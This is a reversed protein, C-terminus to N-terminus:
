HYHSTCTTQLYIIGTTNRGGKRLLQHYLHQAPFDSLECWNGDFSPWSPAAGDWKMTNHPSSTFSCCRLIHPMWFLTHFLYWYIYVFRYICCLVDNTTSYKLKFRELTYVLVTYENYWVIMRYSLSGGATPETSYHLCMIKVTMLVINSVVFQPCSKLPVRRTRETPSLHVFVVVFFHSPM